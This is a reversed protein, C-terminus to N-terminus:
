PRTRNIRKAFHLFTQKVLIQLRPCYCVRINTLKSTIWIKFCSGMIRNFNIYGFVNHEFHVLHIPLQLSNINSSHWSSGCKECKSCETVTNPLVCHSCQIGKKIRKKQQQQFYIKKEYLVIQKHNGKWLEIRVFWRGDWWFECTKKRDRMLFFIPM